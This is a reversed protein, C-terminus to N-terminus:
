KSKNNIIELTTVELVEKTITTKELATIVDVVAGMDVVQFIFGIM